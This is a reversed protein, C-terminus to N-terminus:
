VSEQKASTFFPCALLTIGNLSCTFDTSHVIAPDEDTLQFLALVLMDRVPSAAGASSLTDAM